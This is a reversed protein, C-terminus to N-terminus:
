LARAVTAAAGIWLLVDTDVCDGVDGVAPRVGATVAGCVRLERRRFRMADMAVIPARAKPYSVPTIAPASGSIVRGAASPPSSRVGTVSPMTEEDSIKPAARPAIRPPRRESRKPRRLL